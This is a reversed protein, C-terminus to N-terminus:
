QLLAAQRTTPKQMRISQRRLSESTILPVQAELGNDRVQRNYERVDKVLEAYKKRDRSSM